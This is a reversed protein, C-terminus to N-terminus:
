RTVYMAESTGIALRPRGDYEFYHVSNRLVRGFLWPSEWVRDGTSADYAVLRSAQGRNERLFSVLIQPRGGGGPLFFIRDTRDHVKEGTMEISGLLGFNSDYRRLEYCVGELLVIEALGDGDTDDIALDSVAITNELFDPPAESRTFDDDVSSRSYLFVFGRDETVFEAVGDGDLDGGAAHEVREDSFVPQPEWITAENVIDYAGALSLLDEFGDGNLDISEVFPRNYPEHVWEVREQFPDIVMLRGIGRFLSLFMEVSGDKDHDVISAGTVRWRDLPSVDFPNPPQGRDVRPGISLEGTLPSLYAARPNYGGHDLRGGSLVFLLESEASDARTVPRGGAFGGNFDRTDPQTWEVEFDPNFAAVVYAGIGDPSGDFYEDTGSLVLETVGDGDVDGVGIPAAFVSNSERYFIQQFSDSSEEYRYAAVNFDPLLVLIEIAGDDDIDAVIPNVRRPDFLAAPVPGAIGLVKGNAVSYVEVGAERDDHDLKGLIEDIGDGDMDGLFLSRSANANGTNEASYASEHSWEHEYTVGDFVHGGGVVIELSPDEDVNGLEVHSGLYDPPSQWLVTLDDASLVVISTHYHPFAEAMYVLEFSGDNDLDALKLGTNQVLQPVNASHEVRRDSGDLRIMSDDGHHPGRAALFIEQHGDGDIDGTTLSSFGIEEENVFPHAWAQRYDQGNWELLYVHGFDNLLLMEEDGDGDLDAVRLLGGSFGSVMFPYQRDPDVVRLVGSVAEAPGSSSGIQWGIDMERDFMPVRADWQVRGSVPDITMGLPGYDVGFRFSGLDDGDADTVTANFGVRDAFNVSVPAGSVRIVPAADRITVEMERSTQAEGDSATVLVGIVDNKRYRAAPLTASDIDSVVSGNISWRITTEVPDGDADSAHFGLAIDDTTEPHDPSLMAQLDPPSNRVTVRFTRTMSQRDGSAHLRFEVIDGKSAHGPPLLGGFYGDLVSGNVVWVNELSFPGGCHNYLRYVARLSDSAYPNRPEISLERILPYWRFVSGTIWDLWPVSVAESYQGTGDSDFQHDAHASLDPNSSPTVRATSNTATLLLEGTTPFCGLDGGFATPTGFDFSGEVEDSAVRGMFGVSFESGNITENLSGSQLRDTAGDRVTSAEVNTLSLTSGDDTVTHNLDFSGNYGTTSAAQADASAAVSVTVTGTLSALSQYVAEFGGIQGWGWGADTLSRDVVEVSGVNLRLQSNTNDCNELRVSIADGQSIGGSADNDELASVTAADLSDGDCFIAFREVAGIAAYVSVEVAHQAWDYAREVLDLTVQGSSAANDASFGFPPPPPPPPPPEPASGGGGGGGGCGAGLMAIGLVLSRIAAVSGPLPIGHLLNKSPGPVIATQGTPGTCKDFDTTRM